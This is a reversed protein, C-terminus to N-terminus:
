SADGLGRGRRPDCVDILRIFPIIEFVFCIVKSYQFPFKLLRSGWDVEKIECDQDLLVFNHCFGVLFGYIEELIDHRLRGM